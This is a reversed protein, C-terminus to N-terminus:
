RRVIFEGLRKEGMLKAMKIFAKATVLADGLARHRDASLIGLRALLIDLNHRGRFMARSLAITDIFPNDFCGLGCRRSFFDLFSLDFPANHMVMIRDGVFSIFRVIVEKVDPKNSVMDRSIGTFRTIFVPIHSNPCILESFFSNEDIEWDKVVVAGIELLEAGKEPCMGTTETDVVIFEM